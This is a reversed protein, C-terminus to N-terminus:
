RCHKVGHSGYLEKLEVNFGHSIVYEETLAGKTIIFLKHLSATIESLSKRSLCCIDAVVKQLLSREM